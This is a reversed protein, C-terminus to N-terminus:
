AAAACTWCLKLTFWPVCVMLKPENFLTAMLAEGMVTLAVAVEPRATVKEEFVVPVQVVEPAVPLVTASTAVPVHVM